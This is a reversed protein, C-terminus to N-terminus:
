SPGADQKRLWDLEMKFEGNEYSKLVRRTWELEGKLHIRHHEFVTAALRSPVHEDALEESQHSDLYQLIHELHTIRNRLHSKVEDDPLASM